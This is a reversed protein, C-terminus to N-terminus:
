FLERIGKRRALGVEVMTGQEDSGAAHPSLPALALARTYADPGGPLDVPLAFGGHGNNRLLVNPDGDNGVVVDPWGDGDVDALLM